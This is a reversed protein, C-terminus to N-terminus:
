IDRNCKCLHSGEDVLINENGNESKARTNADLTLSRHPIGKIIEHFEAQIHPCLFTIHIYSVRFTTIARQGSHSFTEGISEM